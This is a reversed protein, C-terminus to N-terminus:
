ALALSRWRIVCNVSSSLKRESASLSQTIPRAIKCRSLHVYRGFTLEANGRNRLIEGARLLDSM